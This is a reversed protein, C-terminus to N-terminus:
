EDEEPFLVDWEDQTIGTLIFEREDNSLQPFCEQILPPNPGEWAMWQEATIPLDRTRVVGSAQSRRKIQM